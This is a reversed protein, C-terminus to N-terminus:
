TRHQHPPQTPAQGVELTALARELPVMEATIQDIRDSDWVPSTYAADLENRLCEYKGHLEDLKM